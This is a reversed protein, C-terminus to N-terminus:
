SETFLSSQRVLFLTYSSENGVERRHTITIQNYNPKVVIFIIVLSTHLRIYIRIM